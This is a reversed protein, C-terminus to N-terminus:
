QQKEGCIFSLRVSSIRMSHYRLQRRSLLPKPCCPDVVALPVEDLGDAILRGIPLGVAAQANPNVVDQLEVKLVHSEVGRPIGKKAAEIKVRDPAPGPISLL